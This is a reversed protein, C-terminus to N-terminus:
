AIIQLPQPVCSSILTYYSIWLPLITEWQASWGFNRVSKNLGRAYSCAEAHSESACLQKYMTLIDLDGEKTSWRSWRSDSICLEAEPICTTKAGQLRTSEFDFPWQNSWTGSFSWLMFSFLSYSFSLFFRGRDFVVEGRFRRRVHPLPRGQFLTGHDIRRVRTGSFFRKDPPPIENDKITVFMSAFTCTLLDTCMGELSQFWKGSLVMAQFLIRSLALVTM